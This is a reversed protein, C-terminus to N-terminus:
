HYVIYNHPVISNNYDNMGYIIYLDMFNSPKMKSTMAAVINHVKLPRKYDELWTVLSSTKM